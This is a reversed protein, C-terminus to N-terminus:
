GDFVHWGVVSSHSDFDCPGGDLFALCAVAHQIFSARVVDNWSVSSWWWVLLVAKRRIGLVLRWVASLRSDIGCRALFSIVWGMDTSGNRVVSRGGNRKRAVVSISVSKTNLNCWGGTLFCLCGATSWVFPHGVVHWWLIRSWHRVLLDAQNQVDSVLQWVESTYGHFRHRM